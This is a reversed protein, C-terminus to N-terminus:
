NIMERYLHDVIYDEVQKKFKRLMKIIESDSMGEERGAEIGHLADVMGVYFAIRAGPNNGGIDRKYIEYLQAIDDDTLKM